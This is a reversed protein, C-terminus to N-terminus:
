WRRVPRPARAAPSRGTRGPRLLGFIWAVSSAVQCRRALDRGLGVRHERLTFLNDDTEDREQQPHEVDPLVDRRPELLHAGFATRLGFAADLLRLLGLRLTLPREALVVSLQGLGTGFRRLD